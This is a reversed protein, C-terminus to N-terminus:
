PKYGKTPKILKVVVSVVRIATLVALAGWGITLVKEQVASSAHTVWWWALASAALATVGTGLLLKGVLGGSGRGSEAAAQAAWGDRRKGTLVTTWSAATTWIRFLLWAEAAVISTAYLLDGPRRGPVRWATRVNLMTALLPPVGWIWAWVFQDVSLAMCLLIVLALRIFGDTFMALQQKWPLWTNRSFGTRLLLRVMGEDWKRRQGYLARVTIMPGAYARANASVLTERGIEHLRWTLEMDEVQASPDWPGRRAFKQTVESLHGTRFLTAQGGLVYTNRNKAMIDTLWSAFDIRQARILQRAWWSTALREDFTYRAMVGGANPNRVMEAELQAVCNADLVTDADVGLVFDYGHHWRQWAQTLAGVKKDVNDVTRMLTVGRYRAAIEETRDTCNDLVVVIREIRRTQTFLADLTRAIDAEENHAPVICLIKGVRSRPPRHRLRHLSLRMSRRLEALYTSLRASLPEGPRSFEGLYVQPNDVLPAPMLIERQQPEAYPVLDAPRIAM